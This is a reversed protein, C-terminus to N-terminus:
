ALYWDYKQDIAIRFMEIYARFNPYINRVIQINDKPLFTVCSDYCLSETREEISRIIVGFRINKFIPFSQLNNEKIYNNTLIEM